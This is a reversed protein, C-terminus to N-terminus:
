SKSYWVRHTLIQLTFQMSVPMYHYNIRLFNTDSEFNYRVNYLPSQVKFVLGQDISKKIMYFLKNTDFMNTKLLDARNPDVRNLHPMMVPKIGFIMKMMKLIVSSGLVRKTYIRSRNNSNDLNSGSLITSSQVRSKSTKLKLITTFCPM